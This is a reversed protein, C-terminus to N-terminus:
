AHKKKKKRSTDFVADHNYVWEPQCNRQKWEVEQRLIKSTGLWGPLTKQEGIWLCSAYRATLLMSTFGLAPLHHECGQYLLNQGMGINWLLWVEELNGAIYLNSYSRIIEPFLPRAAQPGSIQSAWSARFIAPNQWPFVAPNQSNLVLKGISHYSIRNPLGHTGFPASNSWQSEGSAESHSWQLVPSVM